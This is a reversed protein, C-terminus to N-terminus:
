PESSRPRQGAALYMLQISTSTFFIQKQKPNRHIRLLPNPLAAVGREFASLWLKASASFEGRHLSFRTEM